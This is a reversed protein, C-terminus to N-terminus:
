HSGGSERIKKAEKSFTEKNCGVHKIKAAGFLDQTGIKGTLFLARDIDCKVDVDQLNFELLLHSNKTKNVHETIEADAAGKFDGIIETKTPKAKGRGFELTALNIKAVDIDKNGFIMLQIKENDLPSIELDPEENHSGKWKKETSRKLRIKAEIRNPIGPGTTISVVLNGNGPEIFFGPCVITEHDGTKAEEESNFKITPLDSADGDAYVRVTGPPNKSVIVFGDLSSGPKIHYDLKSAWMIESYESNYGENKWGIGTLTSMPSSSTEIIIRWMKTQASPLNTIKYKYIYNNLKKDFSVKVEYQPDIATPPIAPCVETRANASQVFLFTIIILIKEM